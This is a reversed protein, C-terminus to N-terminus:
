IGFEGPNFLLFPVRLPANGTEPFRAEREDNGLSQCEGDPVKYIFIMRCINKRHLEM